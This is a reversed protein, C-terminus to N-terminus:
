STSPTSVRRVFSSDRLHWTVTRCSFLFWISIMMSRDVAAGALFWYILANAASWAPVSFYCNSLQLFPAM